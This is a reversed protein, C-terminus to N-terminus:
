IGLQKRANRHEEYHLYVWSRVQEENKFDVESLDVGSINLKENMDNHYQQHLELIEEKAEDIWPYIVYETLKLSQQRQIEQMIELHDQFNM